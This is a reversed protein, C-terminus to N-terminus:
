CYKVIREHENLKHMKVNETLLDRAHEFDQTKKAYLTCAFYTLIISLHWNCHLCTTIIISGEFCFAKQLLCLIICEFPVIEMIM